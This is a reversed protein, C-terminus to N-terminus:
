VSKAVEVFKREAAMNIYVCVYWLSDLLLDISRQVPGAFVMCVCFRGTIGEESLVCVVCWVVCLLEEKDGVGWAMMISFRAM